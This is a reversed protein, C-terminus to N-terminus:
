SLCSCVYSDCVGRSIRKEKAVLLLETIVGVTVTCGGVSLTLGVLSNAHLIAPLAVPPRRVVGTRSVTM